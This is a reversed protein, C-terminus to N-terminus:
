KGKKKELFWEQTSALPVLLWMREMCRMIDVMVFDISCIFYYLNLKHIKFAVFFQVLILVYRELGEESISQGFKWKNESAYFLDVKTVVPLTGNPRRCSFLLSPDKGSRAQIIIPPHHRRDM